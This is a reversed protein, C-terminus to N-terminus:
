IEFWHAIIHNIMCPSTKFKTDKRMIICKKGVSNIPLKNEKGKVQTAEAEIHLIWVHTCM